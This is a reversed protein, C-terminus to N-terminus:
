ELNVREFTEIIDAGLAESAVLRLQPAQTLAALPLGELAEIGDPGIAKPSRFVVATDVLDAVVFSAAVTPGGEVMLRTIGHVALSRLVAAIDLRGAAGEAPLVEVGADRLEAARAL